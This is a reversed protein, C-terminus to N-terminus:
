WHCHKCESVSLNELFSTPTIDTNTYVPQYRLIDWQYRAIAQDDTSDTGNLTISNAPLLLQRDPGAVAVPARNETVCYLKLQAMEHRCM